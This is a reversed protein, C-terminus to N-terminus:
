IYQSESANVEAANTDSGDRGGDARFVIMSYQWWGLYPLYCLILGIAVGKVMKTSTKQENVSIRSGSSISIRKMKAQNNKNVKQIMKLHFIIILVIPITHFGHLLIHRSILLLGLKKAQIKTALLPFLNVLMSVIWMGIISKWHRKRPMKKCKIAKAVAEYRLYVLYIIHICNCTSLINPILKMLEEDSTGTM